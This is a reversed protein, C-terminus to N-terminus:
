FSLLLLVFLYAMRSKLLLEHHLVEIWKVVEEADLYLLPGIAYEEVLALISLVDKLTSGHAVALGAGYREVSLGLDGRVHPPRM